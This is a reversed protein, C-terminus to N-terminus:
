KQIVAHRAVRKIIPEESLGFEGNSNCAAAVMIQYQTSEHSAPNTCNPHTKRWEGLTGLNKHSVHQILKKMNPNGNAEKAWEDADRVYMIERKIDSCHIPRKTQDLGNLKKTIIDAIGKVFGIEGVRELEDLSVKITDIFESINMADKCTENLFFNLNFTKNHSNTTNHSGCHNHTITTNAAAPQPEGRLQLKNSIDIITQRLERTEKLVYTKIDARDFTEVETPDIHQKGHKYLGSASLYSKDCFTCAYRRRGRDRHYKERSVDEDSCIELSAKQSPALYNAAYSDASVKKVMKHKRTTLHKRYNSTDSCTYDCLKCYHRHPIESLKDGLKQVVKTNWEVKLRHKRTALHKSYNSKICCVYDCLECSYSKSVKEPVKNTGNLEM